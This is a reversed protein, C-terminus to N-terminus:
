ADMIQAIQPGKIWNVLRAGIGRLDAGGAVVLRRPGHCNRRPYLGYISAHLKRHGRSLKDQTYYLQTIYSISVVASKSPQIPLRRSPRVKFGFDTIAGAESQKEDIFSFPYYHEEAAPVFGRL